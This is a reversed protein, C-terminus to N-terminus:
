LRLQQHSCLLPIHTRLAGILHYFLHVKSLTTHFYFLGRLQKLAQAPAEVLLFMAVRLVVTREIIVVCLGTTMQKQSTPSDDRGSVNAWIRVSITAMSSVHCSSSRLVGSFLENLSPCRYRVTHSEERTSQKLKWM